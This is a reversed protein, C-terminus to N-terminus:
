SCNSIILPRYQIKRTLHLNPRSSTIAIPLWIIQRKRMFVTPTILHQGSLIYDRQNFYSKAQYYFVTDAKTTGRYVASIQDFLTSAKVYEENDYYEMAKDFKMRYDSSKLLKEYGSCGSILVLGTVVLLIIHNRNFFM